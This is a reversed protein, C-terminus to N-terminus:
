LFCKKTISEQFNVYVKRSCLITFSSKRHIFDFTSMGKNVDHKKNSEASAVAYETNEVYKTHRTMKDTPRAPTTVVSEDSSDTEETDESYGIGNTVTVLSKAAEKERKKIDALLKVWNEM